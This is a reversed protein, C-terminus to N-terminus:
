VINDIRLKQIDRLYNLINLMSKKAALYTGPDDALCGAKAASLEKSFNYVFDFRTIASYKEKHKNWEKELIDLKSMTNEDPSEPLSQAKEILRAVSTETYNGSFVALSVVLTMLLIPIVIAKM